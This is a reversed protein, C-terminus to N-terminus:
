PHEEGHFDQLTYIFKAGGTEKSNEAWIKEGHAHIIERCIYLGLGFGSETRSPDVKYFSEFVRDLKDDPIGCGSDEISVYVKGEDKMYQTSISIVGDVPTFKVANTLLNYFVRFLSQSEGFVLMEEGKNTSLDVSVSINKDTLLNEINNVADRIMENVNFVEMKEPDVQSLSSAETMSTILRQIRNVEMQIIDMYKPYSEVPITGDSIATLFGKISTLPTRLDHAISSIFVKRDAEQRELREIMSNVTSVMNTIEDTLMYKLASEKRMEPIDIRASLDGKTVQVAADSLARLPRILSRAMLSFFLLAMSFSVLIPLLLGNSLRWFTEQEVDVTKFLVIYIDPQSTASAVSVSESRPNAFIGDTSDFSISKDLNTFLKTLMQNGLYSSGNAQVIDDQVFEPVSTMYAIKGDKKVFWVACNETRAFSNVYAQVATESVSPDEAMSNYALVVSEIQQELSQKNEAILSISNQRYFVAVLVFFVLITGVALSLTTRFLVSQSKKAQDQM